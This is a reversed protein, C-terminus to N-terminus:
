GASNGKPAPADDTQPPLATAASADGEYPAPPTTLAEERASLSTHRAALLDARRQAEAPDVPTLAAAVANPTAAPNKAAEAQTNASKVDAHDDEGGGCGALVGGLLAVVALRAWVAKTAM